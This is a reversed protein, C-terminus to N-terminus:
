ACSAAHRRQSQEIGVIRWLRGSCGLKPQDINRPSDVKSAALAVPREPVARWDKPVV